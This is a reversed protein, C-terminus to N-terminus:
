DWFPRAAERRAEARTVGIDALQSDTMESLALRSLRKGERELIWAFLKRCLNALSGVVSRQEPTRAIASCDLHDVTCITGKM